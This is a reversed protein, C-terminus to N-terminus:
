EGAKGFSGDKFESSPNNTGTTTIDVSVIAEANMVNEFEVTTILHM